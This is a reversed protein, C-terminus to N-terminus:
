KQAKGKRQKGKRKRDRGEKKEGKWEKKWYVNVRTVKRGRQMVEWKKGKRRRDERGKEKENKGAEGEETFM